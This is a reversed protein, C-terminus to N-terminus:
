EDEEEDWEEEIIGAQEVITRAEKLTFNQKRILSTDFGGLEARCIVHYPCFKACDRTIVRYRHGPTRIRKAVTLVDKLVEKTVRAERPLRYRELFPSAKRLTRLQNSFEAPDLGNQKIFRALTPYDTRVKRKSVRGAKTLQPISPPRSQVYNYIVGAIDWGWAQKAAWPYLMLQPDTAHYADQEPINSATKHDVVWRRGDEDDVVLDIIGQLNQVKGKIILPTEVEFPIETGVVEWGEDRRYWVYSKMIREVVEPFPPSMGKGRKRLAEQEEKFLKNWDKLYPLHGDRWDGGIYFSELASHIWNGLYLAREKKKPVLREDYKYQWQKPCREFTKIESWSIAKLAQGM